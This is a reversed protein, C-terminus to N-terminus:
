VVFSTHHDSGVLTKEWLDRIVRRAAKESVTSLVEHLDNCEAVLDLYAKTSAAPVAPSNFGKGGMINQVTYPRATGPDAYNTHNVHPQGPPHSVESVTQGDLSPLDKRVLRFTQVHERYANRSTEVTQANAIQRSLALHTGPGSSPQYVGHAQAMATPRDASNASRPRDQIRTEPLHPSPLSGLSQPTSTPLSTSSAVATAIAPASAAPATTPVTTTPPVPSQTSSLAPSASPVAASALSTPQTTPLGPQGTGANGTSLIKTATLVAQLDTMKPSPETPTPPSKTSQPPGTGTLM